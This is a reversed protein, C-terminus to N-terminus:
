ARGVLEALNRPRINSAIRFAALHSCMLGGIYVLISLVSFLVAMWGNYTLMTAEEFHPMVELVERIINWIYWFPVLALLAGIASLAWSAYTLYKHNGAYGLLRKLNSEKKM